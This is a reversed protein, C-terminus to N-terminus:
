QELIDPLNGHNIRRMAQAKEEVVTAWSVSSCINYIKKSVNSVSEDVLRHGAKHDYNYQCYL